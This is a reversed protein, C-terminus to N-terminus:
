KDATRRLNIRFTSRILASLIISSERCIAHYLVRFFHEARFVARRRWLQMDYELADIDRFQSLLPIPVHESIQVREIFETECTKRSQLLAFVHRRVKWSEECLANRIDAARFDLFQYPTLVNRFMVFKSQEGCESSDGDGIRKFENQLRYRLNGIRQVSCLQDGM